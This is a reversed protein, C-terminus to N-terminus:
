GLSGDVEENLGLKGRGFGSTLSSTEIDSFRGAREAVMHSLGWVRSGSPFAYNM